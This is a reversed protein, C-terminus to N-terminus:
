TGQVRLDGISHEMHQDILSLLEDSDGNEIAQVMHEHEAFRTNDPSDIHYFTDLLFLYVNMQNLMQEMYRILFKNESKKALFLHFQKNIRVYDHLDKQEYAKKEEDLLKHLETFDEEQVKPLGYKVSLYELEKRLDFFALIEQITPQVVFAGRNPIMEILGEAELRKFALRIPTRSVELEKAIAQETLQTGPAISRSLLSNKLYQYVRREITDRESM